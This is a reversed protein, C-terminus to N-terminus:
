DAAECDKNGGLINKHTRGSGARRKGTLKPIDKISLEGKAKNQGKGRGVKVRLNRGVM